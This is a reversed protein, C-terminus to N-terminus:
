STLAAVQTKKLLLIYGCLGKKKKKHIQLPKIMHYENFAPRYTTAIINGDVEGWLNKKYFVQREDWDFLRLEYLRSTPEGIFVIQYWSGQSMPVIIPMEYESEMQMSTERLVTYGEAAYMKKLSDVSAQYPNGGDCDQQRLVDSQASAQSSVFLMATILRLIRTRTKM